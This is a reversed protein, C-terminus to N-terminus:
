QSPKLVCAGLLAGGLLSGFHGYFDVGPMISIIFMYGLTILMRRSNMPQSNVRLARYMIDFGIVSSIASSAGVAVLDQNRINHM